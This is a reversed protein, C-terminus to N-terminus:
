TLIKLKVTVAMASPQTNIAASNNVISVYLFDGFDLTRQADTLTSVLPLRDSQGLTQAELDFSSVLTVGAAASADYKILNLLTTGDADAVLALAGVFAEDVYALNGPAAATDDKDSVSGLGYTNTVNATISPIPTNLTVIQAGFDKARRPRFFQLM